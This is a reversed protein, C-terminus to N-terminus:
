RIRRTLPSIRRATSSSTAGSMASNEVEALPKRTKIELRVVAM